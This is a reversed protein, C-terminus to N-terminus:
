RGGAYTPLSVLMRTGGGDRRLPRITGGHQSVIQRCISLGMGMGEAKDTRFPVFLTEEAHEPLGHGNDSVCLTVLTESVPEIAVTVRRSGEPTARVAELANRILNILLQQLQVIDGLVAPAQAPSTLVVDAGALAIDGRLLKLVGSVLAQTDVPQLVQEGGKFLARTHRM